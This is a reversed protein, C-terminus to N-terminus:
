MSHRDYISSDIISKVELWRKNKTGNFYSDNSVDIEILNINQAKCIVRKLEDIEIIRALKKDGYIPKYHLPGNIQIALKLKPFYIDLESNIIEVNNYICEENPFTESIKEELFKELKSRRFGTTKHTNHYTASCSRSCFNNKTLKIQTFQKVFSKGCTQCSVEKAKISFTKACMQNCFFNEKRTKISKLVAYRPHYSSVGCYKCNLLYCLREAGHIFLKKEGLINLHDLSINHM